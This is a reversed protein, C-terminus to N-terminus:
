RAAADLAEANGEDQFGGKNDSRLYAAGPQQPLGKELDKDIAKRISAEEEAFGDTGLTQADIKFNGAGGRGVYTAQEAAQQLSNDGATPSKASASFAGTQSLTKPSFFNGAGRRWTTLEDFEEPLVCLSAHFTGM